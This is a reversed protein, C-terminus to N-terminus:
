RIRTNKVFMHVLRVKLFRDAKATKDFFLRQPSAESSHRDVAALEVSEFDGEGDDVLSIFDLIDVINLFQGTVRRAIGGEGEVAFLAILSLM